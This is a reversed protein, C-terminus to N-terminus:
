NIIIFAKKFKKYVKELDMDGHTDAFYVYDIKHRSVLKCVKILEDKNYNTSNFINFSM